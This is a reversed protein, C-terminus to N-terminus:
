PPLVARAYETLFHALHSFQPGVASKVLYGAVFEDYARARDANAGSTTLIFVVTGRIAPDARLEQLFEIGNMRPMNLDLLVLSPKEIRLTPHMGRLVQLAVIGDEALVIPWRLAHKNLGRAVAEAAVDDDEVVLLSFASTSNTLRGGRFDRGGSM